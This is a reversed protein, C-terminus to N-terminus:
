EDIVQEPKAKVAKEKGKAKFAAFGEPDGEFYSLKRNKTYTTANTSATEISVIDISYETNLQDITKEIEDEEFQRQGRVFYKGDKKNIVVNNIHFHSM